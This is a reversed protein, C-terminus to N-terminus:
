YGRKSRVEAERRAADTRYRLAEAEEPTDTVAEYLAPPLPAPGFSHGAAQLM